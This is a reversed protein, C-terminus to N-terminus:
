KLNCVYLAVWYNKAVVKEKEYRFENKEYLKCLKARLKNCDLRITEINRKRALNKSFDILKKSIGMGAYIRKVALKHIYLSEGKPIESWYNSDYDTVAMCAVPVDKHFAIYFDGIEYTMSLQKWKINDENWLNEIGNEHMWLVVDKLIEEIDAVDRSTAKRIM